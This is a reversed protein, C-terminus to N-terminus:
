FLVELQAKVKIHEIDLEASKKKLEQLEQETIM